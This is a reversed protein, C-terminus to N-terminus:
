SEGGLFVKLMNRARTLHSRVTSEKQKTIDAIEKTSYGEYYFLCIAARYKPPLASITEIMSQQENDQAPYIDLLPETKKRWPSRLRSRCHNVTVRTLWAAEHEVSQFFPAKEMYKLFVDQMIDEADAKNCMIAVANRYVKNEHRRVFEEM